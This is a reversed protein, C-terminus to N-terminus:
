KTEGEARATASAAFVRSAVLWACNSEHEQVTGRDYMENHCWPCYEDGRNQAIFGGDIEDGLLPRLATELSAIRADREAIYARLTAGSMRAEADTILTAYELRELIANINM